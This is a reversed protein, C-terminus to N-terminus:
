QLNKRFYEPDDIRRLDFKVFRDVEEQSIPLTDEHVPMADTSPVDDSDFGFGSLGHFLSSEERGEDGGATAADEQEFFQAIVSAIHMKREEFTGSTIIRRSVALARNWFLVVWERCSPCPMVVIVDKPIKATAIRQTKCHPCVISRM